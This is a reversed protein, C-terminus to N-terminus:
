VKVLQNGCRGVCYGSLVWSHHLFRSIKIAIVVILRPATRQLEELFCPTPEETMMEEARRHVWFCEPFVPATRSPSSQELVTTWSCLSMSDLSFVNVTLMMVLPHGQCLLRGVWLSLM